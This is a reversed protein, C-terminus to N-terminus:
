AHKKIGTGDQLRLLDFACMRVYHGGAGDILRDRGEDKDALGNPFHSFIKHLYVNPNYQWPLTPATAFGIVCLTTTDSHRIKHLNIYHDSTQKYIIM